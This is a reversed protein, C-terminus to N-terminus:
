RAQPEPELAASASRTAPATSSNAAQALQSASGRTFHVCRPTDFACSGTCTASGDSNTSGSYGRSCVCSSSASSGGNGQSGAYVAVRFLSAFRLLISTSLKTVLAARLAPGRIRTRNITTDLVRQSLMCCQYFSSCSRLSGSCTPSGYSTATQKYGAQLELVFEIRLPYSHIPSRQLLM